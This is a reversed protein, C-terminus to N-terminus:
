EWPNAVEEDFEGRSDRLWSNGQAPTLKGELGAIAQAATMTRRAPVIHAIETRNRMVKVTEGSLVRDLITSTSRALDSASITQPKM